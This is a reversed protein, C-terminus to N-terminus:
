ILVYVLLVADAKAVIAAFLQITKKQCAIATRCSLTIFLLM